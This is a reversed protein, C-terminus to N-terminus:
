LEFLKFAHDYQTMALRIETWQSRTRLWRFKGNRVDVLHERKHPALIFVYRGDPIM